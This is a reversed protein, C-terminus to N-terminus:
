VGRESGRSSKSSISAAADQIHVSKRYAELTSNAEILKNLNKSNTKMIRDFNKANAVKIAELNSKPLVSKDVIGALSSSRAKITYHSNEPVRPNGDYTIRHITTNNFGSKTISSAASLVIANTSASHRSETVGMSGQETGTACFSHPRMKGPDLSAESSTMSNRKIVVLPYTPNLSQIGERNHSGVSKQEDDTFSLRIISNRGASSVSSFSGNCQQSSMRRGRNNSKSSSVSAGNIKNHYALKNALPLMRLKSIEIWRKEGLTKQRVAKILDFVPYLLSPINRVLVVFEETSVFERKGINNLLVNLVTLHKQDSERHIVEVIHRVEEM